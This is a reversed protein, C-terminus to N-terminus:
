WKIKEISTIIVLNAYLKYPLVGFSYMGIVLFLFVQEFSNEKVVHLYTANGPKNYPIIYRQIEKLYVTIEPNM